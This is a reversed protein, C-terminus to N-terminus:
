SYKNKIYETVCEIEPFLAVKNISLNDLSELIQEKNNILLVVRKEDEKLRYKNLIDSNEILGCIIFAGDQKVIRNNNKVAYVIFSDIIEEKIIEPLFAPKELRIEHHLRPIKKNFEYNNESSLACDRIHEQNKRSFLPLSSLVSVSDSQPYKIDKKEAAILVVEGYNDYNSECAFYLAVLPNRTIDLLRTPLGYHQMEVLKELHTNCKSFSEPCNIIIDNYMASENNFWKNNRMISPALIYNADSHGRYFLQQTENVSHHSIFADFESISKIFYLDIKEKNYFVDNTCEINNSISYFDKINKFIEKTFQIRDLCSPLTKYVWYVIAHAELMSLEELDYISVNRFNKQWFDFVKEKKPFPSSYLVSFKSDVKELASLMEPKNIKAQIYVSMNIYGDHLMKKTCIKEFAEGVKTQYILDDFFFFFM